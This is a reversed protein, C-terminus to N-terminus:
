GHHSGGRLTSYAISLGKIKPIHSVVTIEKSKKRAVVIQIEFFSQRACESPLKKM